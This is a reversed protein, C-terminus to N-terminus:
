LANRFEWLSDQEEEEEKVSVAAGAQRYSSHVPHLVLAREDRPDARDSVYPAVIRFFETKSLGFFAGFNVESRMGKRISVELRETLWKAYGFGVSQLSNYLNVLYAPDSHIIGALLNESNLALSIHPLVPNTGWEEFVERPIHRPLSSLPQFRPNFDHVACLSIQTLQALGKELPGLASALFYYVAVGDSNIYSGLIEHAVAVKSFVLHHNMSAIIARVFPSDLSNAIIDLPTANVFPIVQLDRADNMDIDPSSSSSSVYSSSESGAHEVNMSDCDSDSNSEKCDWGSPLQSSGHAINALASFMHSQISM